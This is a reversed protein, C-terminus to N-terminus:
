RRQYKLWFPYPKPEPHYSPTGYSQQVVVPAPLEPMTPPQPFKRKDPYPGGFPVATPDFVGDRMPDPYGREFPSVGKAVDRAWTLWTDQEPSLTDNQAARWRRECEAIFDETGRYLRWWEAAKLLDEQRTRSTEELTEAHKQKAAEQRRIAEEEEQKKRQIEWEIRSKERQIAEAERQKQLEAYHRCVEKAIESVITELSTKEDETWRKEQGGYRERKLTFTLKGSAVKNDQQQWSSYYSQRRGPKEPKDVLEEEVKLHLDDNGKRFCGDDYKSRSKKFLIGRPELIGLMAHFAAAARPAQSKSVDAEPFEPTRLHVRQKDYSVKCEKLSTLFAAAVPHLEGGKSPLGPSAAIPKQAEQAFLEAPSPPLPTKEVKKGFELQAWYGREPRPVGLKKCHKFVAVDSVGFQEAVKTGPISWVLEYLQERTLDSLSRQEAM